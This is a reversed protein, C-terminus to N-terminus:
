ELLRLDIDRTPLHHPRRCLRAREDGLDAVRDDGLRIDADARGLGVLQHVGPIEILEQLLWQHVVYELLIDIAHNLGEVAQRVAVTAQREVGRHLVAAADHLHDVLVVVDVVVGLALDWGVQLAGPAADDAGEIDALAEEV